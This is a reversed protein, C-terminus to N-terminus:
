RKAAWGRLCNLRAEIWHQVRYDLQPAVGLANLFWGVGIGAAFTVTTWFGLVISLVFVPLAILAYRWFNSQQM